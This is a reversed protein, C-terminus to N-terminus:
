NGTAFLTHFLFISTQELSASELKSANYRGFRLDTDDFPNSSLRHLIFGTIRAIDAALFNNHRKIQRRAGALSIYFIAGHAAAGDYNMDLDLGFTVYSYPAFGLLIAKSPIAKRIKNVRGFVRKRFLSVNRAKDTIAFRCVSRM